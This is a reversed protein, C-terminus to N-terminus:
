LPSNCQYSVFKNPAFAFMPQILAEPANSVKTRASKAPVTCIYEVNVHAGPSMSYFRFILLSCKEVFSAITSESRVLMKVPRPITSCMNQHDFIYKTIIQKLRKGQLYQNM